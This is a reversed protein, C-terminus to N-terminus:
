RVRPPRGMLAIRRTVQAHSIEVGVARFPEVGLVGPLRAIEATAARPKSTAFNVIADQRETRNFSYDIMFEVGGVSWLSGVLVAVSLAIGVIGGASRWPRHLLHRTVM